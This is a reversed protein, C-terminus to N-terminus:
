LAGRETRVGHATAGLRELADDLAPRVASWDHAVAHARSAARRRALLGRDDALAAVVDAVAGADDPPVLFGADGVQEPIGGSRAAIMAAGSAMGELVTLPCPDPWRSPVVAVDATRLIEAVEQRTRFPLWRVRSGLPSAARRLEQEYPSVAAHPDFGVTGVFTARVDARGLRVLADVLVDPAKDRLMRGVFVVHLDDRPAADDAPHFLTSDVGNRVVAVRDRLRVPLRAATREALYESVCVVASARDLTRGAERASYTRLLENHAYLVAAHRRTDVLPVLQPMNHGLVVSGPWSSQATLARALVRRAGGRPLGVRALVADAYRDTRRPSAADYGVVDASPYHDAYTGRAASVRPRPWGPPTASALGHVVTPVASGTSPSFHDGPTIVHLHSGAAVVRDM